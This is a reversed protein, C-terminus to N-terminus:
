PWCLEFFAFKAWNITLTQLSLFIKLSFFHVAWEIGRFDDATTINEEIFIQRDNGDNFDYKYIFAEEDEIM